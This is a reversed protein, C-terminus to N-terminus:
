FFALVFSRNKHNFRDGMINYNRRRLLSPRAADRRVFPKSPTWSTSKFIDTCPFAFYVRQRSIGRVLHYFSLVVSSNTGHSLFSLDFSIKESHLLRFGTTRSDASGGHVRSRYLLCKTSKNISHWFIVVTSTNSRYQQLSEARQLARFSM